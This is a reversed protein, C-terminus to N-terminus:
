EIQRRRKRQQKLNSSMCLERQSELHEKVFEVCRSFVIDPDEGPSVDMAAGVDLRASEFNGLNITVGMSYWVRNGHENTSTM